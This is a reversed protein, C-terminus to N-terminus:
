RKKIMPVISMTRKVHKFSTPTLITTFALLRPKQKHFVTKQACHFVSPQWSSFGSPLTSTSATRCGRWVKAHYFVLAHRVPPFPFTRCVSLVSIYVCWYYNFTILFYTYVPVPITPTKTKGVDAPIDLRDVHIVSTTLFTLSAFCWTVSLRPDPFLSRCRWQRVAFCALGGLTPRCRHHCNLPLVVITTWQSSGKLSDHITAMRPM